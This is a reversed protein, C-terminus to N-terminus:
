EQSHLGKGRKGKAYQDVETIGFELMQDIGLRLELLSDLSNYVLLDDLDLEEIRNFGNSTPSELYPQIHSDYDILGYRVYSQFKLSTIGSRNDLLHAALMTDWLWNRVQTGLINMSWMEEFKMNSAIKHIGPHRLYKIFMDKISDVFPFAVSRYEDTAIACSVIKHGELHPKLGNTEYDFATVTPPNKILDRLFAKILSPKKIIEVFNTESEHDPLEYELLEIAEKIDRKWILEVAKNHGNRLVYAPHYTPCIWANLGRDPIKFGRWKTIGGLEKKWRHGILSNVAATGFAVIVHPPNTKIENLVNPRCCDIQKQSPTKNGKPRCNVANIKRAHEDLEIDYERNVRRVLQGSKGILQIGRRDEKEGPGEAVYLLPLKGDGTPPM